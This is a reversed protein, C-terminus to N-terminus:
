AGYRQQAAQKSVGIARGIQSWSAGNQRAAAVFDILRSEALRALAAHERLALFGTEPEGNTVAMTDAVGVTQEDILTWYIGTTTKTM